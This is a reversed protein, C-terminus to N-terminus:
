AVTDCSIGHSRLKEMIEPADKSVLKLLAEVDDTCRGSLSAIQSSPVTVKVGRKIITLDGFINGNAMVSKTNRQFSLGPKFGRM